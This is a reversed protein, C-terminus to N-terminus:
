FSKWTFSSMMPEGSTVTSQQLRRDYHINVNGFDRLTKTVLAGYFDGGGAFQSSAEPAYILAATQAHGRLNVDGVGGYTIVVRSPDYGNTNINSGAKMDIAPSGAAIGIGAVQITVTAGPEVIIQSQANMTLSNVVYTGSELRLEANNQLTVDGLVVPQGGPLPAIKPGSGGATTCSANQAVGLGGCTNNISQAGVPPTAALAPPPYAIAQALEVLGETVTANNGSVTQATVNNSTCAGVGSRPTSLTGNVVVTGNMTLNGNTGVNGGYAQTVVSGGSFSLNGSDYSDTSVGGGFNLAACGNHKAFAAYRYLPVLQREIIASVEVQSNRPGNVYGVSSIEWTQITRSQGATQDFYPEMSLLRATTRYQVNASDLGLSGQTATNFATRVAAVPYTATVDPDSSLVIETGTGALRVPSVSIDYAAIPDTTSITTPETYANLLFNAARHVGSEAGYRAQSALKYNASSWTESQSMFMLSSALVSMTLVMFLAMILAVGQENSSRM